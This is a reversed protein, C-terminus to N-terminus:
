CLSYELIRKSEEECGQVDMQQTIKIIEDLLESFMLSSKRTMPDACHFGKELKEKENM